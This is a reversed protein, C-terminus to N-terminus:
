YGRIMLRLAALAEVSQRADRRAWQAPTGRHEFQADAFEEWTEDPYPFDTM